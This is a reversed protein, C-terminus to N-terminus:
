WGSKRRKEPPTHEPISIVDGYTPKYSSQKYSDNTSIWLVPFRPKKQPFDGYMDTFYILLDTKISEREVYDFVPVFSTGGRGKFNTQVKTSPTLTYEKQVDADCELVTIRTKHSRQIAKIEVIFDQLDENSISGSTDIAITIALKRTPLHGKQAEGYRRNPRKWSLKHGAKIKSAVWRKLLTQWPIVPPKLLEEIYEELGHPLHGQGPNKEAQEKAEKVAQKVIEHAIDEGDGNKWKGHHDVLKGGGVKKGDGDYIEYECGECNGSQNGQEKQSQDQGQQNQPCNSSHKIVIKKQHKKLIDYYIEANAKAPAKWAPDLSKLTLCEKPLGEILQNIAIDAGANWLQHERNRMRAHHDMVLHLIEHELVARREKLTKLGELFEPNYYLLIRGNQITVGCTGASPEPIRKMQSLLSAYFVGKHTLLYCVVEEILDSASTM